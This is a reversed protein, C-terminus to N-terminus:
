KKVRIYKNYYVKGRPNHNVIYVSYGKTGWRWWLFRHKYDRSIITTVSDRVSYELRKKDEYYTVGRTGNEFVVERCATIESDIGGVPAVRLFGKDDIDLVILGIQDMHAAYMIKKKDPGDVGKKLAILNGVADTWMEDALPEVIKEIYERVATEYGAVGWIQTLDKLLQEDRM